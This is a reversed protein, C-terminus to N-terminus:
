KIVETINGTVRVLNSILNLLKQQERGRLKRDVLKLIYQHLEMRAMTAAEIYKAEKETLPM